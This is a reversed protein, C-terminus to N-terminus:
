KGGNKMKQWKKVMELPLKGGKKLGKEVSKVGKKMVNWQNWVSFLLSFYAQFLSFYAKKVSFPRLLLYFAFFWMKAIKGWKENKAMKEGNRTSMKWGKEV